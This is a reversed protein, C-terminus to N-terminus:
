KSASGWTNVYKLNLLPVHFLNIDTYILAKTRVEIINSSATLNYPLVLGPKSSIQNNDLCKLNVNRPALVTPYGRPPQPFIERLRQPQPSLALHATEESQGSTRCCTLCKKMPYKYSTFQLKPGLFSHLSRQTISMRLKTLLKRLMYVCLKSVCLLGELHSRM